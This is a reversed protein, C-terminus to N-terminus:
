WPHGNTRSFHSARENEGRPIQVIKAELDDVRARVQNIYKKMREGKCEYDGNIQNTIVQSNCYIVVRAARAAKALDLGAILAKYESENNTALFDLCVMCEITDGKPSLLVIGAGGAQRNSSGDTYISWHPSEEAGKDEDHTFEAIFDAVIQGKIATRPRYQIDFESLEIAWLALRGVTKPNSMARRLPKNTLVNVTYAQFYPKLKRAVTVLAFALKEM